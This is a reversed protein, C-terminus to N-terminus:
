DRRPASVNQFVHHSKCQSGITSLRLSSCLLFEIEINVGWREFKALVDTGVLCSYPLNEVVVVYIEVSVAPSGVVMNVRISDKADLPKQLAGVVTGHYPHQPFVGIKRKGGIVAFGLIIM